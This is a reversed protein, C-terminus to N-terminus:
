RRKNEERKLMGVYEETGGVNVRRIRRRGKTRGGGGAASGGKRRRWEGDIM